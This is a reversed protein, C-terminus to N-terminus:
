AEEDDEEFDWPMLGFQEKRKLHRLAEHAEAIFAELDAVAKGHDPAEADFDWGLSIEWDGCQHPLTVKWQDGAATSKKVKFGFGM